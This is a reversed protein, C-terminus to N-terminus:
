FQLTHTMLRSFIEIILQVEFLGKKLFIYWGEPQMSKAMLRRRVLVDPNKLYLCKLNILFITAEFQEMRFKVVLVGGEFCMGRAGSAQRHAMSIASLPLSISWVQRAFPIDTFQYNGSLDSKTENIKVQSRFWQM